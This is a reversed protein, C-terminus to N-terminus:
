RTPNMGERGAYMSSWLRKETGKSQWNELVHANSKGDLYNEIALAHEFTNESTSGLYPPLVAYAEGAFFLNQTPLLSASTDSSQSGEEEDAEEGDTEEDDTEEDPGDAATAESTLPGATVKTVWPTECKSLMDWISEPFNKKAAELCDKWKKARRDVFRERDVFNTM